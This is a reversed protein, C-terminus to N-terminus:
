QTLGRERQSLAPTLAPPTIREAEDRDEGQAERQGRGNSSPVLLTSAVAASM